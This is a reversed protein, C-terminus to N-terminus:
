YPLNVDIYFFGGGTPAAPAPRPKAPSNKVQERIASRKQQQLFAARQARQEAKAQEPTMAAKGGRPPTGSRAMKPSMSSQDGRKNSSWLRMEVVRDVDSAAAAGRTSASTALYDKVSADRQEKPTKAKLEGLRAM